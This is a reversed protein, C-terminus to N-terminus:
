LILSCETSEHVKGYITLTSSRNRQQRSHTSTRRYFRQDGVFRLFSSTFTVRRPRKVQPFTPPPWQKPWRVISCPAAPLHGVRYPLSASVTLGPIPCLTELDALCFSALSIVPPVRRGIPCRFAFSRRIPCRFTFWRHYAVDSPVDLHSAGGSPVDLHSGGTTRARRHVDLHSGDTTRSTRHSM